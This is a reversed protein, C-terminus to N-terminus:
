GEGSVLEATAISGAFPLLEFHHAGRALHSACSACITHAVLCFSTRLQCFPTRAMESTVSTRLFIIHANIHANTHANIHAGTAPTGTACRMDNKNQHLALANAQSPPDHPLERRVAPVAGYWVVEWRSRAPWRRVFLAGAEGPASSAKALEQPWLRVFGTM